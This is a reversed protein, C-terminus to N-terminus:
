PPLYNVVALDPILYSRSSLEGKYHALIQRQSKWENTRKRRMSKKEEFCM